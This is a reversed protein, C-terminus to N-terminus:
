TKRCIVNPIEGQQLQWSQEGWRSVFNSTATATFCHAVGNCLALLGEDIMLRYTWWCM